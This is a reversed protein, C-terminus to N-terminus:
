KPTPTTDSNGEIVDICLKRLYLDGKKCATLLSVVADIDNKGTMGYEDVVSAYEDDTM